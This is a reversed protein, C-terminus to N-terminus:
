AYTLPSRYLPILLNASEKKDATKFQVLYEKGPEQSIDCLLNKIEDKSLVRKFMKSLEESADIIEISALKNDNTVDVLIHETLEITTDYKQGEIVISIADADPDYDYKFRM